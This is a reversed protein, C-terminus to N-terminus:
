SENPVGGFMETFMRDYDAKAHKRSAYLNAKHVGCDQMRDSNWSEYREGKRNYMPIITKNPNALDKADVRAEGHHTFLKILNM